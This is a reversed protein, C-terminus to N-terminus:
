GVWNSELLKGREAGVVQDALLILVYKKRELAEGGLLAVVADVSDAARRLEADLVLEEGLGLPRLGLLVNGVQHGEEGLDLSLLLLNLLEVGQRDELLVLPRRGTPGSFVLVGDQSFRRQITLRTTCSVHIGTKEPPDSGDRSQCLVIHVYM